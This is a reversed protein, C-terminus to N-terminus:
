EVNAQRYGLQRRIGTINKRLRILEVSTGFHRACSEDDHGITFANLLAARPLLLAAAFYDAEAEHEPNYHNMVMMQQFFFVQAPPHELIIHSLEHCLTNNSRGANHTDNHIILYAAGVKITVASWDEPEHETLRKLTSEPLDEISGPTWIVVKLYEALKRPDLPANPDLGLERRFGLSANECWTPFGRRLKRDDEDTEKRRVM